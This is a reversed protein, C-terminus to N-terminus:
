KTTRWKSIAYGSWQSLDGDYKNSTALELLNGVMSNRLDGGQYMIPMAATLCVENRQMLWCANVGCNVKNKQKPCPTKEEQNDEHLVRM